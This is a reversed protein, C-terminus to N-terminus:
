NDVEVKTETLRSKKNEQPQNIGVLGTLFKWLSKREKVEETQHELIQGRLEELRQDGKEVTENLEQIKAELEDITEELETTDVTIKIM